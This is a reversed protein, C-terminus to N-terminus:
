AIHHWANKYPELMHIHEKYLYIASQKHWPQKIEEAKSAPVIWVDPHSSIDAFDKYWFLMFVLDNHKPDAYNESGIGWKGGGRIAKVSVKYNKGTSSSYSLIDINKANGLTLAPLHGLRYLIEMAHFEGAMGTAYGTDSMLKGQRVSSNLRLAYRFLPKHLLARLAHV